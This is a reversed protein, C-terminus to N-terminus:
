AGLLFHSHPIGDQWGQPPISRWAERSGMGGDRSGHPDRIASIPTGFLWVINEGRLTHAAELGPPHQRAHRPGLSAPKSQLMGGRAEGDMWGDMRAAPRGRPPPTGTPGPDARCRGLGRGAAPRARAGTLGGRLRLLLADWNTLSSRQAGRM